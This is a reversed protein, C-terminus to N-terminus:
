KKESVLVRGTIPQVEVVYQCQPRNKHSLIYKGSTTPVGDTGFSINYLRAKFYVGSCGHEYCYHLKMVQANQSILYSDANQTRIAPKAHNDYIAKQQMRRLDGSLQSAALYVQQKYYADKYADYKLLIFSFSIVLVFIAAMIELLIYGSQRNLGNDLGLKTQVM